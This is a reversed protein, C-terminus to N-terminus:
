GGGAFVHRLIPIAGAAIVVVSLVLVAYFLQKQYRAGNGFDVILIRIGNLAHFVCAALLGIEGLRFVPQSYLAMEEDFTEPDSLKSISYVHLVLYLVIALGSVRHLVWAVQGTYWHFRM